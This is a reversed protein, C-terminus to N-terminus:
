GITNFDRVTQRSSSFPSAFAGGKENAQFMDSNAGRLPSSQRRAMDPNIPTFLGACEGVLRLAKAESYCPV